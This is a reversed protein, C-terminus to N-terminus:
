NRTNTFLMFIIYSSIQWLYCSSSNNFILSCKIFFIPIRIILAAWLSEMHYVVRQLTFYVVVRFNCAINYISTSVIDGKLFTWTMLWYSDLDYINTVQWTTVEHNHPSSTVMYNNYLCCTSTWSDHMSLLEMHFLGFSM